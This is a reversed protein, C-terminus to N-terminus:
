AAVPTKLKAMETALLWLARNVNINQDIGTIERTRTRRLNATRGPLGGRVVNEQVTNFTTWVDNQRDEFRRPLLLQDAQIPTTEEGYRAVLAAQAFVHREDRTLEIAQMEERHHKVEDLRGVVTYAADIVSSAVDGSHKIRIDDTKEGTVLGNMCVFRFYGALMQYSSTGDHSNILIIEPAGGVDVKDARRLRVLHKTFESKGPVRSLSQGASFPEFGEKRLGDLVKITPIYAYRASRSDHPTEAFISPAVRAIQDNSLPSNSTISTRNKGFRTALM